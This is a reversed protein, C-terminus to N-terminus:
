RGGRGLMFWGVGAAAVLVAWKPFGFWCTAPDACSFSGAFDFSGATGGAPTGSGASGDPGPAGAGAPAGSSQVVTKGAPTTAAAVTFSASGSLQGGVKWSENWTGVTSSDLQGSKVFSGSSDTSGMPTDTFAAGPMVGSVTVPSNPSAGTIKVTWTDGVQLTQGGRSNTFTFQGGRAGGSPTFSVPAPPTYAPTQYAVTRAAQEPSDGAYPANQIAAQGGCRAMTEDYQAQSASNQANAACVDYNNQVTADQLGANYQANLVNNQAVITADPPYGPDRYAPIAPPDWVGLGPWMGARYNSARPARRRAPVIM